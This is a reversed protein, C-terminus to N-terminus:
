NDESERMWEKIVNLIAILVQALWPTAEAGKPQDAM